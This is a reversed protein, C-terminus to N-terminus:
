VSECFRRDSCPLENLVMMLQKSSRENKVFFNESSLPSSCNRLQVLVSSCMWMVFVASLGSSWIDSSMECFYFVTNPSFEFCCTNPTPPVSFPCLFICLITPSFNCSIILMSFLLHFYSTNEGKSIWLSNPLFALLFASSVEVQLSMRWACVTALYRSWTSLNIIQM